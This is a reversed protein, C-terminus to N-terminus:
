TLYELLVVPVPTYYINFYIEPTSWTCADWSHGLRGWPAGWFSRQLVNSVSDLKASSPVIQILPMYKQINFSIDFPHM